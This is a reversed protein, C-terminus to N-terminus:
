KCRSQREVVPFNIDTDVWSPFTRRTLIAYTRLAMLKAAMESVMCCELEILSTKQLSLSLITILAPNLLSILMQDHSNLRWVKPILRWQGQVAIITSGEKPSMYPVCCKFIKAVKMSMKYNCQIHLHCGTLASREEARPLSHDKWQDFLNSFISSPVTELDFTSHPPSVTM